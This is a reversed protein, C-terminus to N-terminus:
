ELMNEEAVQVMMVMFLMIDSMKSVPKAATMDFGHAPM